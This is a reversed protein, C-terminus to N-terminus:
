YANFDGLIEISVISIQTNMESGNKKLYHGIEEETRTFYNNNNFYKEPTLELQQKLLYDKFDMQPSDPRLKKDHRVSELYRPYYGLANLALIHGIKNFKAVQSSNACGDLIVISVFRGKHNYASVVSEDSFEVCKVLKQRYNEALRAICASRNSFNWDGECLLKQAFVSETQLEYVQLCGIKAEVRYGIINTPKDVFDKAYIASATALSPKPANGNLGYRYAAMCASLAVNQGHKKRFEILDM